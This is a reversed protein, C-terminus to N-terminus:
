GPLVRRILRLGKRFREYGEFLGRAKLAFVEVGDRELVTIRPIELPPTGRRSVAPQTTFATSFGAERCFEVHREDLDWRSGYPYAFADVPRGLWQELDTKSATIELRAQADPVGALRPHERTHAGIDMGAQDLARVDAASLPAFGAPDRAGRVWPFAQQSDAFGTSIFFTAGLGARQLIPLATTLNNRYGDDFTIMVARPPLPQSGNHWALWQAPGMSQYGQEVLWNMQRTFTDPTVNFRWANEPSMDEGVSHFLLVPVGQIPRRLWATRAALRGYFDYGPLENEPVVLSV